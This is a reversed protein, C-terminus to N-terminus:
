STNILSLSQESPWSSSPLAPTKPPPDEERVSSTPSSIVLPIADMVITLIGMMANM